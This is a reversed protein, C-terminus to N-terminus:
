SARMVLCTARKLYVNSFDKIGWLKMFKDNNFLIAEMKAPETISPHTRAPAHHWMKMGSQRAPAVPQLCSRHLM